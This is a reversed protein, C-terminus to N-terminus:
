IPLVVEEYFLGRVDHESMAQLVITYQGNYDDFDFRICISSCNQGPIRHAVMESLRHVNERINPLLPTENNLGFLFQLPDCCFIHEQDNHQKIFTPDSDWVGNNYFNTYQIETNNEDLIVVCVEVHLANYRVCYCRLNTNRRLQQVRTAFIDYVNQFVGQIDGM